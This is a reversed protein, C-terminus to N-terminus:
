GPLEEVTFATHYFHQGPFAVELKEDIVDGLFNKPFNKARPGNVECLLWCSQFRGVISGPLTEELALALLGSLQNTLRQMSPDIFSRHATPDFQLIRNYDTGGVQRNFAFRLADHFAQIAPYRVALERKWEELERGGVAKRTARGVFDWLSWGFHGLLFGHWIADCFIRHERTPARVGLFSSALDESSPRETKEGSLWAVIHWLPDSLKVTFHAGALTPLWDTFLDVKVESTGCLSHSRVRGDDALRELLSVGFVLSRFADHCALVNRVSEPEGTAKWLDEFGAIKGAAERDLGAGAYVEANRRKSVPTTLADAKAFAFEVCPWSTLDILSTVVRQLGRVTRDKDLLENFRTRGLSLLRERDFAVGRSYIEKDLADFRLWFNGPLRPQRLRPVELPKAASGALAKNLAMEREAAERHAASINVTSTNVPQPM